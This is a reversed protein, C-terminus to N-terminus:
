LRKKIEILALLIDGLDNAIKYLKSYKDVFEQITMNEDIGDPANNLADKIWDKNM